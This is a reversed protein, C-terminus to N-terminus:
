FSAGHWETTVCGTPPSASRNYKLGVRLRKLFLQATIANRRNPVRIDLVVEDGDVARWLQRLESRLRIIVEDIHRIDGLRPHRKRLQAVINANFWRCWQWVSKYPIFIGRKALMLKVKRLSLGFVHYLWLAHHIVAPPFRYGPYTVPEM